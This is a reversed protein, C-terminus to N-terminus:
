PVLVVGEPTLSVLEARGDGNLDVVAAGVPLTYSRSSSFQGGPQGLRIRHGDLLLDPRGDGNFDGTALTPASAELLTGTGAFGGGPLGAYFLLQPEIVGAEGLDAGSAVVADLRGDGSFDAVVVDRPYFVSVVQVAAFTGDTQGLRVQLDSSASFAQVLDARGDGNLDLLRNLGSAV